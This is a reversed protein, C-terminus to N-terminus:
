KIYIYLALSLSLSFEDKQVPNKHLEFICENIFPLKM